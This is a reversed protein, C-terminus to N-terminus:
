SLKGIVGHAADPHTVQRNDFFPFTLAAKVVRSPYKNPTQIFVQGAIVTLWLM